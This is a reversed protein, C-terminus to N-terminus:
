DSGPSPLEDRDELMSVIERLRCLCRKKAAYVSDASIGIERAVEAASRGDLAFRVFADITSQGLATEERLRDMAERLIAARHEQDWVRDLEQEGAVPDIASVRAPSRALSRRRDIIRYRAIGILWARLRGKAPDYKGSRYDQVFRTLTEQAIDDADAESLGLRLSWSRLIPRYRADFEAWVPRNGPDLLGELLQSTTRTATIM